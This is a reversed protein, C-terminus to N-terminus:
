KEAEVTTNFVNTRPRLHYSMTGPLFTRALINHRGDALIKNRAKKLSASLDPTGVIPGGAQEPAHTKNVNSANRNASRRAGSTTTKGQAAEGIKYEEKRVAASLKRSHSARKGHASYIDSRSLLNSESGVKNFLRKKVALM